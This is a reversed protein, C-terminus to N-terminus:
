GGNRIIMSELAAQSRIAPSGEVKVGKKYIMMVPLGFSSGNYLGPVLNSKPYYNNFFVEAFLFNKYVKSLNEFIPKMFKSWGCTTSMLDVITASYNPNNIAALYQADNTINIYSQVCYSNCFLISLILLKLM